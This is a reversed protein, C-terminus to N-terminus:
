RTGTPTASLTVTGTRSEATPSRGPPGGEDRLGRQGYAELAERPAFRGPMLEHLERETMEVDGIKVMGGPDSEVQYRAVIEALSRRGAVDNPNAEWFARAANLAPDATPSDLITASLMGLTKAVKGDAQRAAQLAVDFQARLRTTQQQLTLQQAITPPQGSSPGPARLSGDDGVTFKWTRAQELAEQLTRQAAGFSQRAAGLVKVIGGVTERATYTKERLVQLQAHAAEADKGTWGQLGREQMEKVREHAVTLTERMKVWADSAEALPGLRADRLGAFTVTM